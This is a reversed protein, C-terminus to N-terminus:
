RREVLVSGWLLPDPALTQSPPRPGLRYRNIMAFAIMIGGCAIFPVAFSVGTLLHQRLKQLQEM